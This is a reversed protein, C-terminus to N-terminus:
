SATSYRFMMRRLLPLASLNFGACNQLIPVTVMVLRQRRKQSKLDSIQSSDGGGDRLFKIKL